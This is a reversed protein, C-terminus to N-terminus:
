LRVFLRLQNSLYPNPKTGPHMVPGPTIVLRGKSSFRLLKTPTKPAIVHPRTGEHHMYAYKVTSGIWLYQGTFNGTHRKHISARLNGTKVGVEGKAKKVAYDGRRELAKWLGGSPTNLEKLLQPKYIIVKSVQFTFSGGAFGSGGRAGRGANRALKVLKRSYYLGASDPLGYAM